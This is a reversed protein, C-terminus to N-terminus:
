VMEKYLDINSGRPLCLLSNWKHHIQSQKTLPKQLAQRETLKWRKELPQVPLANDGGPKQKAMVDSMGQRQAWHPQPLQHQIPVTPLFLEWSHPSPVKGKQAKGVPLNLKIQQSIEPPSIWKQDTQKSQQSVWGHLCTHCGKAALARPPKSCSQSSLVAGSWQPVPTIHLSQDTWVYRSGM